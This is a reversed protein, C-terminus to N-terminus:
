RFVTRDPLRNSEAVEVMFSQPLRRRGLSVNGEGRGLFVGTAMAAEQFYQIVCYIM